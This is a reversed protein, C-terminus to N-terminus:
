RGPVPWIWDASAEMLSLLWVERFPPSKAATHLGDRLTAIDTDDYSFSDCQIVLVHDSASAGYHSSKAELAATADSPVDVLVAGGLTSYMISTPESELGEYVTLDSVFGSVDQYYHFVRRDVGLRMPVSFSGRSATLVPVIMALISKFVRQKEAAKKPLRDIGMSVIFGPMGSIAQRLPKIIFKEVNAPHAFESEADGVARVLQVKLPEHNATDEFLLDTPETLARQSPSYNTGHVSNYAAVFTDSIAILEKGKPEGVPLLVLVTPPDLGAERPVGHCRDRRCQSPNRAGRLLRFKRGRRAEVTVNSAM